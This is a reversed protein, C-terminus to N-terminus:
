IVRTKINLVVDTISEQQSTQEEILDKVWQRIQEKQMNYNENASKGNIAYWTWHPRDLIETKFGNTKDYLNM